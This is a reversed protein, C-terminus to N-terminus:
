FLLFALVCELFTNERLLRVLGLNKNENTNKTKKKKVFASKNASGPEVFVKTM